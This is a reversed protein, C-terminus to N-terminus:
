RAGRHGPVSASTAGVLAPWRGVAAAIHPSGASHAEISLAVLRMTALHLDYEATFGLAGTFQHTDTRVMDAARVAAALATSVGTRDASWAAEYTLWRAGEIAVACKALGHQVAQFSGIPHGFQHRATVHEVTAELAVRMSGVLEAALSLRWWARVEAPDVDIMVGDHAAAGTWPTSEGIPWGLRSAVRPSGTVGRVVRVSHEGVIVAAAADSAFRVPGPNGDAVLSVPSDTGLGLSHAVLTSYGVAAVGVRRAVQETVLVADLRSPGTSLDLFGADHLRRHLEHDYSPEDGGLDRMRTPGAYRTLITEVADLIALQDADPTYDM